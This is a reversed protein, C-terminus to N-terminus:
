GGRFWRPLWSWKAPPKSPAPGRLGLVRDHLKQMEWQLFGDCHRLSMEEMSIWPGAEPERPNRNEWEEVLRHMDTSLSTVLAARCEATALQDNSERLVAALEEQSWPEDIIALAAAATTRDYPITSRLAKRFLDLAAHPMFELALIGAEGLEHRQLTLLKKLVDAGLDAGFQSVIAEAVRTQRIRHRALCLLTWAARPSFGNGYRPIAKWFDPCLDTSLRIVCDVSERLASCAASENSFM